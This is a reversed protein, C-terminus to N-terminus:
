RYNGSSPRSNLSTRKDKMSSVKVAQEPTMACKSQGKCGGQGACSNKDTKCANQGKCDNKGSCDHSALKLANAKGEASLKDYDAKAQTSLKAKFESESLPKSNDPTAQDDDDNDAFYNSSQGGWRNSQNINSCSGQNYASQRNSSGSCSSQNQMYPRTNSCGSQSQPYSDQSYYTTPDQYSSCSHGGNYATSGGCSHGANSGGCSHGAGNYATSGGCSGKSGCKAALINSTPVNTLGELANVPSHSAMMVGGTIGMLALKKLDNKKMKIEGTFTKFKEPDFFDNLM